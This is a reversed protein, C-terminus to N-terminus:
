TSTVRLNKDEFPPEPAMIRFIECVCIALLLRVEKDKHQLLGHVIVKRLPKTAVELKKATELKKAAEQFSPQEVASLANAAQQLSFEGFM